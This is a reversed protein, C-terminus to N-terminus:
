IVIIFPIVLRKARILDADNIDDDNDDGEDESPDPSMNVVLGNLQDDPIGVDFGKAQFKALKSLISASRKVAVPSSLCPTDQSNAVGNEFKRFKEKVNLSQLDELGM